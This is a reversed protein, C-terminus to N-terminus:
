PKGPERSWGIVCIISRLFGYPIAWWAADHTRHLVDTAPGPYAIDCMVYAAISWPIAVLALLMLSWDRSTWLLAVPVSAAFLGLVLGGLLGAVIGESQLQVGIFLGLIFVGVAVALVRDLITGIRWKM